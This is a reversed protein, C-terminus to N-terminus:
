ARATAVRAGAAEGALREVRTVAASRRVVFHCGADDAAREARRLIDLGTCDVFTVRRLDVEVARSAGVCHTLAAQLAPASALDIEGSVRVLGIDGRQETLVRMM